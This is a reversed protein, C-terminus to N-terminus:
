KKRSSMSMLQPILLSALLLNSVLTPTSTLAMDMMHTPTTQPQLHPLSTTDMTSETTDVSGDLSLMNLVTYTIAKVTTTTVTNIATTVM